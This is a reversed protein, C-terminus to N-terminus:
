GGAASGGAKGVPATAPASAPEQGGDGRAFRERLEELLQRELRTDRRVQTWVTNQETTTAADRDVPTEHGPADSLRYGEPQVVARQVTDRRQVDVRLRAVTTGGRRGVSFEAVRRMTSQGGYLDRATGSERGTTFEVPATVIRRAARDVKVRGFERQLITTGEALVADPEADELAWEQQRMRVGGTESCGAAAALLPLLVCWTLPRM